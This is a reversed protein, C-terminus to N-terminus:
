TNGLSFLLYLTRNHSKNPCTFQVLTIKLGIVRKIKTDMSSRLSKTLAKTELRFEVSAIVIKQMKCNNAKLCDRSPGHQQHKVSDIFIHPRGLFERKTNVPMFLFLLM